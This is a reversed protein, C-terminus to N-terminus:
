SDPSDQGLAVALPAVTLHREVGLAHAALQRAHEILRAMSELPPEAAIRFQGRRLDLPVGLVGAGDGTLDPKIEIEDKILSFAHQGFHHPPFAAVEGDPGAAGREVPFLM